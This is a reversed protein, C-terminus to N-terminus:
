GAPAIREKLLSDLGNREAADALVAFDRPDSVRPFAFVPVPALLRRLGDLTRTAADERNEEVANLVVGRVRLGADHAARVTLLVHNVVGRRNAAVVVVDLEWTVFLSEFTADRTLPVVLGDSAEVVVADSGETLREFAADLAALDIEGEGDGAALWPAVDARLVLPLVWELPDDAGAAARLLSADDATRDAVDGTQVPKIGAPRHGSRRLLALLAAAVTTKGVGTDTGTVGISIM